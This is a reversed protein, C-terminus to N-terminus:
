YVCCSYSGGVCGSAGRRTGARYSEVDGSTEEIPGFSSSGACSVAIPVEELKKGDLDPLALTLTELGDASFHAVDGAVRELSLDRQRECWGQSGAGIFSNGM